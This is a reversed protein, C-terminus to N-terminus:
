SESEEPKPTPYDITLVPIQAHNIVAEVNSGVLMRKLPRREHNSIAILKVDLEEAIRRIGHDINLDQFVHTHCEFPTCLERFSDMSSKTVIYPSEFLSSTHIAVLHIEPIFPKIFEKFQLFPERESEKFSSAYIVKEFTLTGPDDKVILVPCHISRVVKQTNSGVFYENKGSSGHSGMVIFDISHEEVHAQVAEPLPLTSYGYDITVKPHRREIDELLVRLNNVRQQFEPSDLTEKEPLSIQHLFYLKADFRQALQVAAQEAFRACNSFDTPVLINKM